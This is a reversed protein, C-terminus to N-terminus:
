MVASDACSARSRKPLGASKGRRQDGTNELPAEYEVMIHHPTPWTVGYHSTPRRSAALHPAAILSLLWREVYTLLASALADLQLRGTTSSSALTSCDRFRTREFSTIDDVKRQPASWYSRAPLGDSLRGVVGRL